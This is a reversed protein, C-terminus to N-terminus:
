AEKEPWYYAFGETVQEKRYGLGELMEDIKRPHYGFHECHPAWWEMMIGPNSRLVGLAGELVHLEAGEVDIKILSPVYGWSCCADELCVGDVEYPEGEGGQTFRHEVRSYGHQGPYPYFTLKKTTSWAACPLVEVREELHNRSINDLLINRVRGNPELALVQANPVHAALLTFAGTNAGVDIYNQNPSEVLRSYFFDLVQWNFARVTGNQHMRWSGGNEVSEESVEVDKGECFLTGKM